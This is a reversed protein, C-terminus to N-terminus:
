GGGIAADNSYIPGASRHKNQFGFKERFFFVLLYFLPTTALSFFVKYLLSFIMIPAVEIFPMNLGWYFFIMDILVTDVLQSLWTSGNARVWLFRFGTWRKIMAYIQIDVLQAACYAALSSFIRLGSLGLVAQFAAHETASQGPLSLAIQLIGFTLINMCLTIAVMRRAKKAGYIETVLGSLMFSLPYIMLGAPVYFEEFYPLPVMKASIVNSIVVLICFATSILQYLVLSAKNQKSTDM